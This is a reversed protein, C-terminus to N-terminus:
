KITSWNINFEKSKLYSWWLIDFIRVKTLGVVNNSIKKSIWTLNQWNDGKELNNYYDILIQDSQKEIWQRNIGKCYEKYEKQLANDIMPITKPCLTHLIKTSKALGIGKIRLLKNIVKDNLDKIYVNRREEGLNLFGYLDYEKFICLIKENETIVKECKALTKKEIRAGIKNVDEIKRDKGNRTILDYNAYFDSQFCYAEILAIPDSVSFTKSFLSFLFFEM